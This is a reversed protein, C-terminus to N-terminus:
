ARRALNRMTEGLRATMEEASARTDSSNAPIPFLPEGFVVEVKFARRPWLWGAVGTMTESGSIVVPVVPLGSALAIRCAGINMKAGALVGDASSRIRGEPFIGVVRGAALRQLAVAATQRSVRDRDVPIAALARWYWALLPRRYLEIMAVWDIWRRVALTLLFPDFPSVHNAALIFAGKRPCYERGRVRMRVFGGFFFRSHWYTLWQVLRSGPKALKSEAHRAVNVRWHPTM